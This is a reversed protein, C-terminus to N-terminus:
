AVAADAHLLAEERDLLRARDAAARAGPDLLRARVARARADHALDPRQGHLHRRADVVAVPDPQRALSLRAAVATRRAVQVDIDDHPRMRDERAVALIQRALHRDAKRGGREAARDLHRREVPVDHQFNRRLRLGALHKAQPAFANAGHPRRAVAIQEAAHLHLRRDIESCLLLLQQAAEVLRDRAASLPVARARAPPEVAHLAEELPHSRLLNSLIAISPADPRMPRAMRLQMASSESTFSTPATVCVPSGAMPRSAPSAA